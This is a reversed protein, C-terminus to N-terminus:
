ELCKKWGEEPMMVTKKRGEGEEQKRCESNLDPSEEFPEEKTPLLPFCHFPPSIQRNFAALSCFSSSLLCQMLLTVFFALSLASSVGSCSFFEPHFNM